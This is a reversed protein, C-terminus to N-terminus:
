QTRVGPTCARAAEAADTARLMWVRTRHWTGEWSRGGAALNHSVTIKPQANSGWYCTHCSPSVRSAETGLAAQWATPFLLNDASHTRSYSLALSVDGFDPAADPCSALAGATQFLAQHVSSGRNQPIFCRLFAHLRDRLRRKKAMIELYKQANNAEWRRPRLSRVQNKQSKGSRCMHIEGCERPRAGAPVTSRPLGRQPAESPHPLSVLNRM